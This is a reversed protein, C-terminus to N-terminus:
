RLGSTPGSAKFVDERSMVQAGAPGCKRSLLAAVPELYVVTKGGFGGRDRRSVGAFRRYPHWCSRPSHACPSVDQSSCRNVRAM